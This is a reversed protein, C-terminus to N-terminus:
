RREKTFIQGLTTVRPKPETVSELADKDGLVVRALLELRTEPARDIYEVLEWVRDLVPKAAKWSRELGRIEALNIAPYSDWGGEDMGTQDYDLLAHGTQSISYNYMDPFSAWEKRWRRGRPPRTATRDPNGADESAILQEIMPDLWRRVPKTLSEQPYLSDFEDPSHLAFCILLPARVPENWPNVGLVELPINSMAWQLDDDVWDHEAQWRVHELIPFRTGMEDLLALYVTKFNRNPLGALRAPNLNGLLALLQNENVAGSLQDQFWSRRYAIFAGEIPFHPVPFRPALAPLNMGSM